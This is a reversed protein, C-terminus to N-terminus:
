LQLMVWWPCALQRPQQSGYAAPWMLGVVSHMHGSVVYRDRSLWLKIRSRGVIFLGAEILEDNAGHVRAFTFSILHPFCVQKTLSIATCAM